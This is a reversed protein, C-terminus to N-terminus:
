GRAHGRSRSRQRRMSAASPRCSAPWSPAGPVPRSHRRLLRDLGEDARGAGHAEGPLLLRLHPQGSRRAALWEPHPQCERPRHRGHRRPRVADGEAAGARARRGASAGAERRVCRGSRAAGARRPGAAAPLQDRGAGSQIRAPPDGAHLRGRALARAREELVADFAGRGIFGLRSPRLATVTASRPRGDLLSLEGVLAGAGLIALIRENGAASVVSVKLLGSEISYCGDGADGAVFLTQEAQLEVPRAHALLAESLAKPLAAFLNDPLAAPGPMPSIGCPKPAAVNAFAPESVFGTRFPSGSPDRPRCPLM